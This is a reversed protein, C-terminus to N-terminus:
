STLRLQRVVLSGNLPQVSADIAEPTFGDGIDCALELRTEGGVPIDPIRIGASTLGTESIVNTKGYLLLSDDAYRVGAPLRISVTPQRLLENGDNTIRLEVRIKRAGSVDLTPRWEANESTRGRLELATSPVRVRFLATVSADGNERSKADALVYPETMLTDPLKEEAYRPTPGIPAENRKWVVSGPIFELHSDPRSLYVASTGRLVTPEDPSSLEGIITAVTDTQVVDFRAAIDDISSSDGRNAYWIEIKVVQDYMAGTATWYENDGCTVNAAGLVVTLGSDSRVSDDFAHQANGNPVLSSRLM